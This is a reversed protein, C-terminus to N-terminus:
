AASFFGFYYVAANVASAPVFWILATRSQRFRLPDRTQYQLFVMALFTAGCAICMVVKGRLEGGPVVFTAAIGVTVLSMVLWAFTRTRLIEDHELAEISSGITTAPGGPPEPRPTARAPKEVKTPELVSTQDDVRGM